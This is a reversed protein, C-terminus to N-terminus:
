YNKKKIKELEEKKEQIRQYKQYLHYVVFLIGGSILLTTMQVKNGNIMIPKKKKKKKKGGGGGDIPPTTNKNEMYLKATELNRKATKDKLFTFFLAGMCLIIVFIVALGGYTLGCYWKGIKELLTSDANGQDNGDKDCGPMVGDETFKEYAVGGVLVELGLTAFGTLATLTKAFGGGGGGPGEGPGGRPGRGAGEGLGGGAGEGLGKRELGKATGKEGKGLDEAEEFMNAIGM